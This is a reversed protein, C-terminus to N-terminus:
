AARQMYDGSKFLANGADKQKTSEKLASGPGTHITDGVKIAQQSAIPKDNILVDGVRSVVNNQEQAHVAFSGLASWTAIANLFDRRTWWSMEKETRDQLQHMNM